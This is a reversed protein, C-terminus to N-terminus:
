VPEKFVPVHRYLDSLYQVAKGHSYAHVHDDGKTVEDQTCIGRRNTQSWDINIVRRRWGIKILGMSTGVLWWPSDTADRVYENPISVVSKVEIGALLFMASLQQLTM